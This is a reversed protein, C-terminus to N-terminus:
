TRWSCIPMKEGLERWNRGLEQAKALIDDDIDTLNQVYVVRYGLHRLYRVLVDFYTYTFAHGLHTIDYPTIGCVYVGVRNNYATFIEKKGSLTDFLRMTM